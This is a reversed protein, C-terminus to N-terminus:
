KAAPEESPKLQKKPTLTINVRQNEKSGTGTEPTVNNSSTETKGGAIIIKKLTDYIIKQSSVQHGPQQLKANISMELKNQSARYVMHESEAKITEGKETVHNYRAPKGTVTISEIENNNQELTVKDGSLALEGQSIRVNGTYVSHGSKINLHMHDASILVKEVSDAACINIQLCFLTLATFFSVNLCNNQKLFGQNLRPSAPKLRLSNTWSVHSM